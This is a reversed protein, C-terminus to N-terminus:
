RACIFCAQIVYVHLQNCSSILKLAVVKSDSSPVTHRLFTVSPFENESDSNSDEDEDSACGNVVRFCRHLYARVTEMNYVRLFSNLLVLSRDIVVQKPTSVNTWGYLSAEARRFCDLFHSISTIDHETTILEGVAVPGYGNPHQVVLAYYLPAPGKGRDSLKVITGTADCYLAQTKVVYHYIRLGLETYLMVGFPHWNM